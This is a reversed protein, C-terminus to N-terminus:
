GNKTATMLSRQKAVAASLAGKVASIKQQLDAVPDTKSTTTTSKASPKTSAAKEKNKLQQKHSERFKKAERAAKAKEAATPPKNADAKKKEAAAMASKLKTGLEALRNTIDSVRKAAFAKQETLQQQTLKVTSGDSLRVTFTQKRTPTFTAQPQQGKKRGKLKRTRLYYAHAKAPDYPAKGHMLVTGDPLQM